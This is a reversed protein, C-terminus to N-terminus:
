VKNVELHIRLDGNEEATISDIAIGAKALKEIAPKDLTLVHALYYRSYLHEVRSTGLISMIKTHIEQNQIQNM